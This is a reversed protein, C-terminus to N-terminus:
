LENPGSNEPVNVYEYSAHFVDDRCPYFEGKVGKIIWDGERANLIGGLTSIPMTAAMEPSFNAVADFASGWLTRMRALSEPGKFRVAEIMVPKKTYNSV